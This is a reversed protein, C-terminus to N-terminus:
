QIGYKKENKKQKKAAIGHTQEDYMEYEKKMLDMLHISFRAAAQSM